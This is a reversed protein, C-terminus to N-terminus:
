NVRTLHGRYVRNDSSGYVMSIEDSRMRKLRRTCGNQRFADEVAVDDRKLVKAAKVRVLAVATEAGTTGDTDVLWGFKIRRTGLM